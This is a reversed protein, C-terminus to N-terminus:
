LSINTIQHGKFPVFISCCSCSTLRPLATTAGLLATQSINYCSCAPPPALFQQPPGESPRKRSTIQPLFALRRWSTDHHGGPPGNLLYFKFCSGPRRRWSSTPLLLFQASNWATRNHLFSNAATTDDYIQAAPRATRHIWPDFYAPVSTISALFYNKLGDFVAFLM